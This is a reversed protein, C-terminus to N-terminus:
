REGARSKWEGKEFYSYKYRGSPLKVRMRWGGHMLPSLNTSRDISPSNDPPTIMQKFPAFFDFGPFERNTCCKFSPQICTKKTMHKM